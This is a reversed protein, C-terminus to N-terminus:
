RNIGMYKSINSSSSHIHKSNKNYKSKNYQSNKNSFKVMTNRRTEKEPRWLGSSEQVYTEINLILVRRLVSTNKDVTMM